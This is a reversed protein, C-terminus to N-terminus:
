PRLNLKLKEFTNELTPLHKWAVLTARVSKVSICLLYRHFDRGARCAPTADTLVQIPSGLVIFHAVCRFNLLLLKAPSM